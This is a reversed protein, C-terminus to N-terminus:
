KNNRKVFETRKKAYITVESRNYFLQRVKIDTFYERLLSVSEYIRKWVGNKPLKLTLIISGNDKLHETLGCVIKTSMQTDMKMDDVLLDYSKAAHKRSFEQATMKYHRIKKETSLRQSLSAPDVADVQIGRLALYHSWGGPAAGLDIANKVDKLKIDFYEIAEELKLEARCIVSTDKAYFLVGGTWRSLNDELFSIGLYVKDDIISLSIAMSAKDASVQVGKGKFYEILKQTLDRNRFGYEISSDIRCQCVYIEEWCLKTLIKNCQEKIVLLDQLNGSLKAEVFYPHIHRAFILREDILKKTMNAFDLSAIAASNSGESVITIKGIRREIENFTIGRMSSSYSVVYGETGM